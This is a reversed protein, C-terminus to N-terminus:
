DVDVMDGDDDKDKKNHKKHIQKNHQHKKQKRKKRNNGRHSSKKGKPDKKNKLEKKDKLDQNDKDELKDNVIAPQNINHKNENRKFEPVNPLLSNVIEQEDTAAMKEMFDQLINHEKPPPYKAYYQKLLQPNVGFKKELNARTDAGHLAIIVALNQENVDLRRVQDAFLHCNFNVSKTLTEKSAADSYVFKPEDGYNGENSECKAIVQQKTEFQKFLHPMGQDSAFANFTVMNIKAYKLNGEDDKDQRHHRYWGAFSGAIRLYNLLQCVKQVRPDKLDIIDKWLFLEPAALATYITSSNEGETGTAAKEDDALQAM